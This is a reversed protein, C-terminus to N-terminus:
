READISGSSSRSRSSASRARRMRRRPAAGVQPGREEAGRRPPDRRRALLGAGPRGRRHGRRGPHAQRRRGLEPRRPHRRRGEPRGQPQLPKRLEDTIGSLSLGLAQRTATPTDTPPQQLNAQQQKEGDELRGLTVQKTLEQGKRMVIVEVAKGVPTSAVIRPLDRSDKVERGDFRVIVDGVELGSPKAPGKDDIGAVLAGRPAGLSSRKRRRTTLREPHARWALRPADRRVPAAARHDAHRDRRSRCLRHRGLRRDAVPDRHQHRHGRREMNFLPGGSNGKNIAADTQIYNDYPGSDINRGRASIIGATVSGGLGFPNGIAM